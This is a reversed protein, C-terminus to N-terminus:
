WMSFQLVAKRERLARGAFAHIEALMAEVEDREWDAMEESGRWSAAGASRRRRRFAGGTPARVM